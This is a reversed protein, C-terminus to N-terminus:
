LLRDTNSWMVRRTASKITAPLATVATSSASSISRVVLVGLKDTQPVEGERLGVLLMRDGPSDVDREGRRGSGVDVSERLGADGRAKGVVPCGPQTRGIGVIVVRCKQFVRGAVAEFGDVAVALSGLAVDIV